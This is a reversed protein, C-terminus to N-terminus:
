VGETLVRRYMKRVERTAIDIGEAKMTNKEGYYCEDINRIMEDFMEKIDDTNTERYVYPEAVGEERNTEKDALGLAIGLCRDVEDMEEPTLTRVYETLREKSITNVSECLATSLVQAKIPCHTPLQQKEQSTMWVITVNPSFANAKDNSVVIGPRSGQMECGTGPRNNQVFFIDGRKIDM